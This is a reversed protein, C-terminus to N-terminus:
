HCHGYKERQYCCSQWVSVGNNSLTTDFDGSSALMDRGFLAIIDQSGSVVNDNPVSNYMDTHAAAPIMAPAKNQAVPILPITAEFSPGM